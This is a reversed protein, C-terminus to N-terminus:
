RKAVDAHPCSGHTAQAVLALHCWPERVVVAIARQRRGRELTPVTAGATRRNTTPATMNGGEENNDGSLSGTEMRSLAQVM